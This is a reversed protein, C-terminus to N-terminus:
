GHVRSLSQSRQRTASASSQKVRHKPLAGHVSSHAIRRDFSVLCRANRVAVALLYPDTIQNYGQARTFSFVEDNRLSVDDPWFAHDLANQFNVRVTSSRLSSTSM